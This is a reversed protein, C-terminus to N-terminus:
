RMHAQVFYLVYSYFKTNVLLKKQLDHSVPTDSEPDQFDASDTTHM